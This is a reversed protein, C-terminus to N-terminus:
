LSTRNSGSVVNIVQTYQLFIENETVSYGLNQIYNLRIDTQITNFSIIRLFFYKTYLHCVVYETVKKLGIYVWLFLFKRVLM